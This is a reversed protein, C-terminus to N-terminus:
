EHHGLIEAKTVRWTRHRRRLRHEALASTRRALEQALERQKTTLRVIARALSSPAAANSTNM